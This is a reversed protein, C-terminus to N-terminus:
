GREAEAINQADGTTGSAKTVFELTTSEAVSHDRKSSHDGKLCWTWRKKEYRKYFGWNM